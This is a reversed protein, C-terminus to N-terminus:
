CQTCGDWVVGMGSPIVILDNLHLFTGSAGVGGVGNSADGTGDVLTGEPNSYTEPIVMQADNKRLDCM